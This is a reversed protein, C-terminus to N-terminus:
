KKQYQNQQMGTPSLEDATYTPNNIYRRRNTGKKIFEEEQVISVM